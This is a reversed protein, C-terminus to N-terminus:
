PNFYDGTSRSTATAAMSRGYARMRRRDDLDLVQYISALELLEDSTLWGASKIPANFLLQDLQFQLAARQHCREVVDLAEGITIKDRTAICLAADIRDFTNM